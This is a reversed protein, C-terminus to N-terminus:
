EVRKHPLYGRKDAICLATLGFGTSVISAMKRPDRRGALDNRARDLIQGTKESSQEWFFLSGHQELDDLFAEDARTPRGPMGASIASEPLLECAAMAGLACLVNRRGVKLTENRSTM